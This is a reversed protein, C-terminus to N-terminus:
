QFIVCVFVFTIM